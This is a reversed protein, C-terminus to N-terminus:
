RRATAEEGAAAGAALQRMAADMSAADSSAAASAAALTPAPVVAPTSIGSASPTGLESAPTHLTPFPPANTAPTTRANTSPAPTKSNISKAAGKTASKKPFTVFRIVIFTWKNDWSAVSMRVEYKAFMPVERIFQFHTGGLASWGGARMFGPFYALAAKLRAADLNKAYCSNSLHFNYDCDDIGAWGSHSVLSDFPTKGVPSLSELWRRQADEREKKSRFLMRLRLLYWRVRLAIVPAFVRIHWGFPLSRWNLAIVFLALYTAAGPIHKAVTRLLQGSPLSPLRSALVRVADTATETAM